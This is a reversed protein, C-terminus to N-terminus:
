GRDIKEQLMADIRALRESSIGVSEPPAANLPASKKLSRTQSAANLTCALIFLLVLSKISFLNKM